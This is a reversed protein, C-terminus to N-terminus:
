LARATSLGHGPKHRYVLFYVVPIVWLTFLTSALIGFIIAWALGAFIPDLTIVLNGLLTTVATLLVPRLRVAGAQVLAEELPNGEALSLHVFEVLVLSNRVVIGALAIMGIMATATFLVPDPYMGVAREGLQNLLWFGPMIGIVTLPIALMIIGSLTALGTQALLVMFIGVLAAAFALGLDRFVRLTIQWEGEGSWVARLGTPLSWGDGGGRQFYSRSEIPRPAVDAPTDQDALLDLVVEAPPRGALEAYVYAVPQLNKRYRTQEVAQEVFDGLEGLPVLPQPADRLGGRERLKVIGPQGKVPLTALDEPHVRRALPLRLLIPLPNVENDLQLFGGPYGAGAIKLTNAIAASSVGSLAAKERDPIFVLRQHPAEVSTDVDVVLPERRLRQALAEAGQQLTTYPTTETGYVEAVLTSIVPPGPPVEVLKLNAGHRAGIAELDPRLRLLLAHSQQARNERPALSVRLDAQHPQDRLFYHRVLGNFDMPSPVGVFAAVSDVEAVRSLYASLEQTVGATRELTSGEPMDVVVQFENKNDYPLLKLPVLRLGPLICAAIFAVAVLLLFLWSRGPTLFPRLLGGYVRYVGGANPHEAPTDAGEPLLRYALWPTILFAVVTSLTVSVPVNFAMPAMYPGMMGTIFFLPVFALIIALTSMILATRIEAMADVVADARRRGGLRLYRDINDIGTIPDDVLLGLALILAFLTVRNITYGFLLDLGLAAGYCVPVALGVVLAARWGMFLGLFVVVTLMAALLSTVLNNVKDNATAGYDRIIEVHIEPPFLTQELRELTQRVQQAVWVANAGPQKAVALYVAPHSGQSESVPGFSLWSYHDPETPGDVIRAVDGLFVPNGDVVNVVAQALERADAFFEGAELPIHQDGQLLHGAPQRVNSLHLAQAVDLPATRRAALAEPDLELRIVRPQGGVVSVRNTSPIAQLERELEEALRRLQHADSRSPDDSWLGAVMIPVDDVEVPKVVWGQVAAPIEDSHSHLKNYLKVLSAERDEGVYFRVTVVAQHRRSMAYVHEVGDIQYLLKELPITVQREIQAASLGPASVLVDALPVIIQPEEERPTLLLAVGGILVAALMLLGPFPNDLLARMARHFHSDPTPNIM